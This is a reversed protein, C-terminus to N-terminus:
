LYDGILGRKGKKKVHHKRWYNLLILWYFTNLNYDAQSKIINYAYLCVNGSWIEKKKPPIRRQYHGWPQRTLAAVFITIVIMSLLTTLVVIMTYLWSFCNLDYGQAKSHQLCIREKLLELSGHQIDVHVEFWDGWALRTNMWRADVMSALLKCRLLNTFLETFVFGFFCFYFRLRM